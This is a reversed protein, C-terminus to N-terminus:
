LPQWVGKRSSLLTCPSFTREWEHAHRGLQQIGNLLFCVSYVPALKQPGRGMQSLAILLGIKGGWGNSRFRM